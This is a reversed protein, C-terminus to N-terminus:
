GEIKKKMLIIGLLKRDPTKFYERMCNREGDKLIVTHHHPIRTDSAAARLEM